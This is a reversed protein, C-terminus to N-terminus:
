FTRPKRNIVEMKADESIELSFNGVTAEVRHFGVPCSWNGSRNSIWRELFLLM